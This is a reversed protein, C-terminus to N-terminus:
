KEMREAVDGRGAAEELGGGAPGDDDRYRGLLGQAQRAAFWRPEEANGM